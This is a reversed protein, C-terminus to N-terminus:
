AIARGRSLEVLFPVCRRAFEEFDHASTYAHASLRLYGVGAFSTLSCEAGCHALLPARLADAHERTDGLNGPLRVLRMAPTLAHTPGRHDEGTESTFASAVLEAGYSVVEAMYGRIAPWGWQSELFDWAKPAALFSTYDLTGQVDFREAFPGDPNWSDILPVLADRDERAILVASGRPACAFKHLNGIWWDAGHAAPDGPVIGPAHAGDVLVRVGREHACAIVRDIPFVRATASTVEDLVIMVTRDTLAAQFLEVVDDDTASFPIDLTRVVAGALAAHRHIGMLMAGYGHNTVLVEDGGHLPFSNMVVTAGASANPIFAMSEPDTGLNRAVAIRAEAMADYVNVFWRVPSSEMQARLRAQYDLAVRPVGGFSGHNLHLLAPDLAWEAAAPRGDRM